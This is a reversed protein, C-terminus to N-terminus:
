ARPRRGRDPPPSTPFKTRPRPVLLDSTNKTAERRNEGNEDSKNLVIGLANADFISYHLLWYVGAGFISSILVLLAWGSPWLFYLHEKKRDRKGADIWVGLALCLHFLAVAVSAAILLVSFIQMELTPM